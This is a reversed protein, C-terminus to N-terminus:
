ASSVVKIASLSPGFLRKYTLYAPHHVPLGPTSYKMPDCLTLCSQTVSSFQFLRKLFTFFSLSFAPKFSLMWLIFIMDDQGMVEHFISSHLNFVILYKRKNPKLIVTSLSQLWSIVLCKSRPLLTIVFRSLMNLLLSMVKGVFTRTTLAITKGITM